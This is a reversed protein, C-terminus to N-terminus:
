TIYCVTKSPRLETFHYPFCNDLSATRHPSIPFLQKPSIPFLQQTTCYQSTIYSVTTPPHLVTLHCSFCMKHSWKQLASIPFLLQHIYNQLTIHSVITSPHLESLHYPFNNNLPATRHPSIPFLQRHICNQSTTIKHLGWHTLEINAPIPQWTWSGYSRCSSDCRESVPGVSTECQCPRSIRPWGTTQLQSRHHWLWWVTRFICTTPKACSQLLGLANAISISRDQVLRDIGHATCGSLSSADIFLNTPNFLVTILMSDQDAHFDLWAPKSQLRDHKNLLGEHFINSLFVRLYWVNGKSLITSAKCFAVIMKNQPFIWLCVNPDVDNKMGIRKTM